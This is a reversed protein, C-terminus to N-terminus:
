VCMIQAERSLVFRTRVYSDRAPEGVCLQQPDSPSSQPLHQQTGAQAERQQAEVAGAARGRVAEVYSTEPSSHHKRTEWKDPM